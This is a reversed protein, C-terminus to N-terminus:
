PHWGGVFFCAFVCGQKTQSFLYRVGNCFLCGMMGFIFNMIWYTESEINGSQIIFDINALLESMLALSYTHLRYDINLQYFFTVFGIVVSKFLAKFTNIPWPKFHTVSLCVFCLFQWDTLATLLKVGMAYNSLTSWFFPACIVLARICIMPLLNWSQSVWFRLPYLFIRAFRWESRREANIMLFFCVWAVIAFGWWM